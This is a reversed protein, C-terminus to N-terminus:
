NKPLEDTYHTLALNFEPTKVISHSYNSKIKLNVNM